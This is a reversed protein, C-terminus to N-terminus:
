NSSAPMLMLQLGSPKELIRAKTGPALVFSLILEGDRKEILPDTFNRGVLGDQIFDIRAQSIALCFRGNRFYMSYNGIPASADIAIREAGSRDAIRSLGTIMVVASRPAASSIMQPKAVQNTDWDSIESDHVPEATEINAIQTQVFTDRDQPQRITPLNVPTTRLTRALPSMVNSLNIANSGDAPSPSAAPSPLPSSTPTATPNAEGGTVNPAASSTLGTFDKAKFTIALGFRATWRKVPTLEGFNAPVSSGNGFGVPFDSFQGFHIGPTVYFRHYLNGSLGTFFGFTSANNQAGLRLVPGASLALGFNDSDLKLAGLSYNLLAVVAPTARSNNEVTLVNLTSNPTKRSEYTRDPITSFLAGASLTLVDTGSFTFTKSSITEGNFMEFVTASVDNGPNIVKTVSFVHSGDVLKQIHNVANQFREYDNRLDNPWPCSSSNNLDLVATAVKRLDTDHGKWADISTQLTVTHHPPTQAYKEPLYPDDTINKVATSLADVLTQEKRECPTLGKLGSGPSPKPAFVLGSILKFDDVGMPTQRVELRYSFLIDNVNKITFTVVEKRNITPYSEPVKSNSSWDYVVTQASASMAASVTVILMLIFRFFSTRTRLTKMIMEPAQFNFSTFHCHEDRAVSTEVNRSVESEALQSHCTRHFCKTLTPCEQQCDAIVRRIKAHKVFYGPVRILSRKARRSSKPCGRNQFGSRWQDPRNLKVSM